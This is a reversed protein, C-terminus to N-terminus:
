PPAIFSLLFFDTSVRRYTRTEDFLIQQTAAAETYENMNTM